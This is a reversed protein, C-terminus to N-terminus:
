SFDVSGYLDKKLKEHADNMAAQDRPSVIDFNTGRGYLHAEGGAELGRKDALKKPILIKGQGNMTVATNMTHLMGKRQGKEGPTLGESGDISRLMGEFAEDTLVKLVPVGETEWELLRLQM